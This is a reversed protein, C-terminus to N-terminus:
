LFGLANDAPGLDSPDLLLEGSASGWPGTLAQGLHEMRESVEFNEVALLTFDLYRSGVSTDLRQQTSAQSKAAWLSHM